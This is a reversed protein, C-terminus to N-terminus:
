EGEKPVRFEDHCAKCAKWLADSTAKVDGGSAAATSLARARTELQGALEDFKQRETWVQPKARSGHGESGAPFLTVFRGVAAAIEAAPAAAEAPKGAKLAAGIAKASKGVGEMLEHRDRIPGPPLSAAHDHGQDAASRAGDALLGLVAPLAVAAALWTVRRPATRRM